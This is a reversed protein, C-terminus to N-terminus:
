GSVRVIEGSVREVARVEVEFLLAHGALPHNFDVRVRDGDLERIVGPLEAQGADAFSVVLGEALHIGSDFDARRYERVNGENRLGFASEPPVEFRGRDGARLGFLRREFGPLLSGDGILFTAAQGGTGDIPTGDPYRLEFCLTV